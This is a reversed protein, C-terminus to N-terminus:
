FIGLKKMFNSHTVEYGGSALHDSKPYGREQMLRSDMGSLGELGGRTGMGGLGLPEQGGPFSLGREHMGMQASAGNGGMDAAVARRQTGAGTSGPREQGPFLSASQGFAQPGGM